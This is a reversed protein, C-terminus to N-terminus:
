RGALSPGSACHACTRRAVANFGLDLVKLTLRLSPQRSRAVYGLDVLTNLMRFTTGADLDAVHRDSLTM